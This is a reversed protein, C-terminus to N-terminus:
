AILDARLNVAPVITATCGGQSHIKSAPLLNVGGSCVRHLARRRPRGLLFVSYGYVAFQGCVLGISLTSVILFLWGGRSIGIPSSEQRTGMVLWHVLVIAAWPAIWHAFFSLCNEFFDIVTASALLCVLYGVVAGFIAATPRSVKIGASILSYSASTDNIANVPTSSVGILLLVLPALAGSLGQLAKMIGDPTQDTVAASTMYGFFMLFISSLFIASFIVSFVKKSPIERPLYRTYDSTWTTWGAVSFAMILIFASLLDNLQAPKAPVPLSSVHTMAIIGIGVFAVGLLIGTYKSTEQIVHHGYIGILMQIGILVGLVAWLPATIGFSSCFLVLASAAMLNNICDWGVCAIWQLFAPIRKGTAGLAFRSSEMSSLRTKPGLMALAAPLATGVINGVIIILLAEAFSLGMGALLVGMLWTPIGINGVFFVWFPKTHGLIQEQESVGDLILSHHTKEMRLLNNTVM